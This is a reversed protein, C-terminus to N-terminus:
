AAACTANILPGSVPPPLHVHGYVVRCAACIAPILSCETQCCLISVLLLQSHEHEQYGVDNAAAYLNCRKWQWHQGSQLCYTKKDIEPNLASMRLDPRTKLVMQAVTMRPSGNVRYESAPVHRTAAPASSIPM